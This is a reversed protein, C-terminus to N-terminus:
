LEREVGREREGGAGQACEREGGVEVEVEREGRKRGGKRM